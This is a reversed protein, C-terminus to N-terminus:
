GKIIRFNDEWLGLTDIFILFKDNYLSFNDSNDKKALAGFKVSKYTLSINFKDKTNKYFYNKEKNIKYYISRGLSASTCRNDIINNIACGRKDGYNLYGWFGWGM